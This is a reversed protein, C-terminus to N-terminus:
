WSRRRLPAWAPVGGPLRLPCSVGTWWLPSGDPGPGFPSTLDEASVTGDTTLQLTDAGVTVGTVTPRGWAPGSGGRLFLHVGSDVAHAIEAGGGLRLRQEFRSDSRGPLRIYNGDSRHRQQVQRMRELLDVVGAGVVGAGVPM